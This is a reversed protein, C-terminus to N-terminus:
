SKESTESTREAEMKLTFLNKWSPAETVPLLFHTSQMRGYWPIHGSLTVSLSSPNSVNNQKHLSSWEKSCSRCIEEGDDSWFEGSVFVSM